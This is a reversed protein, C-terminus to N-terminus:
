TTKRMVQGVPRRKHEGEAILRRCDECGVEDPDSSWGFGQNAADLGCLTQWWGSQSFCRHPKKEKEKHLGCSKGVDLFVAWQSALRIVTGVAAWLCSQCVEHGGQSRRLLTVGECERVGCLDCGRHGCAYQM